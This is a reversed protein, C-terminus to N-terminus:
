ISPEICNSSHSPCPCPCPSVSCPPHQPQARRPQGSRYQQASLPQGQISRDFPHLQPQSWQLKVHEQHPWHCSAFSHCWGERFMVYDEVARPRWAPRADQPTANQSGTSILDCRMIFCSAGHRSFVSNTNKVSSKELRSQSDVKASGYGCVGDLGYRRRAMEGVLQTGDLVLVLSETGASHRYIRQRELAIAFFFSRRLGPTDNRAKQEDGCVGRKPSDEKEREHM